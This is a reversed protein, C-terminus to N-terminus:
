PESSGRDSPTNVNRLVGSSAPVEVVRDPSAHVVARAGVSLPAAHLEDFLAAAFLVPHGRRGGHVPVAIGGARLASALARLDDVLVGPHDVPCLFAGQIDGPLAALGLRFSSLMGRDPSSNIVVQDASLGVAARVAREARGLVIRVERVGAVALISLWRELYTRGDTSLLAKPSGMRRSDGAALVVAGLAPAKTPRTTMMM